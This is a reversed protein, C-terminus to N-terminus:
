NGFRQKVAELGTDFVSGVIQTAEEESAGNPEFTSSWVVTAKGDSETVSLTAKYDSVPLPGEIIAYSYTMSQDNHSLQQELFEDGGATKLRRHLAGNITEETCAEIGPYWDAIACYPGIASWVDAANADVTIERSVEAAEATGAVSAFVVLVLAIRNIRFSHRQFARRMMRDMSKM